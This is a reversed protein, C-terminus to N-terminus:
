HPIGVWLSWYHAQITEQNDTCSKNQARAAYWLNSFSSQHVNPSDGALDMLTFFHQVSPIQTSQLQTGQQALTIEVMTKYDFIKTYDTM